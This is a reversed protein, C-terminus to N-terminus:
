AGGGRPPKEGSTPGHGAFGSELVQEQLLAFFESEEPSECEEAEEEDPAHDAGGPGAVGVLQGFVEVLFRVADLGFDVVRVALGLREGRVVERAFLFVVEAHEGGAIKLM